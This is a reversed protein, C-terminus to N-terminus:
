NVFKWYKTVGDESAIILTDKSFSIAGTFAWDPYFITITDGTLSYKYTNFQNAYYISDKRIDFVANESNGDTWIRLLKQITVKSLM